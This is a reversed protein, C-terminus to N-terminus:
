PNRDSAISRDVLAERGDGCILAIHEVGQKPLDNLGRGTLPRAFSEQGRAM